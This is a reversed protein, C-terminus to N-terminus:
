NILTQFRFQGFIDIKCIFMKTGNKFQGEFLSGIITNMDRFSNIKFQVFLQTSNHSDLFHKRMSEVRNLYCTDTKKKLDNQFAAIFLLKTTVGYVSMCVYAIGQFEEIQHMTLDMRLYLYHRSWNVLVKM